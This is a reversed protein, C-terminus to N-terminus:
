KKPYKGNKTERKPKVQTVSVLKITLQDNIEKAVVDRSYGQQTITFQRLPKGKFVIAVVGTYEKKPNRLRLGIGPREVRQVPLANKKKRKFWGFM